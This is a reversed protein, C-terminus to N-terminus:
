NPHPQKTMAKSGFRQISFVARQLGGLSNMETLKIAHFGPSWEPYHELSPKEALLEFAPICSSGSWTDADDSPVFVRPRLDVALHGDSLEITVPPLASGPTVFVIAPFDSNRM